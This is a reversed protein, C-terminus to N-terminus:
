WAQCNGLVAKFVSEQHQLPALKLQEATLAWLKPLDADDPYSVEVDDLIHKCVTELLTRAATIAGEPDSVRRDLAKQWAAHVRDPEFSELTVSIPATGPARDIAELYDILPRFADWILARREAYHACEYKIFAWFQGLDRCRRVFDPLMTKTDGRSAFFRRLDQYENDGGDFGGGTACAVLGNQFRTAKDLITEEILDDDM